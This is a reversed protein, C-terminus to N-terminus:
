SNSILRDFNGVLYLDVDAVASLYRYFPRLSFQLPRKWPFDPRAHLIVTYRQHPFRFCAARFCQVSKRPAEHVVHHASDAFPEGLLELDFADSESRGDLPRVEVQAEAERM